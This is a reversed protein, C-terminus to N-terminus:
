GTRSVASRDGGREYLVGESWIRPVQGWAAASEVDPFFGCGERNASTNCLVPSGSLRLYRNLLEALWPDGAPSITQLRASGDVHIVAPIRERWEPRVDHRFLMYPDRGGPDFVAAAHEELCIPAVPRYFERRKITNLREKMEPGAASALISRHGLARPGLEARGHLVVVPEQTEHLVSALRETSCASATWGEPPAGAGALAPGSYVSWSLPGPGARWWAYACAAGIASGADNPMPPVWVDGVCGSARLRSNWGINLACGGVLCIRDAPLRHVRIARALREVLLDGLFTEFSSMRDADSGCGADQVAEWFHKGILARRATRLVDRFRAIAPELPGGLGAYAMAKGSLALMREAVPPTDRYEALCVAFQPYANGTVPLLPGIRRVGAEPQVHFLTPWISGDWVLVLADLGAPAYPSTGYACAIHGAVHTSSLYRVEHAGFPLPGDMELCAMPDGAPPPSYGAVPVTVARDGATVWVPSGELWGDVVVADFDCLGYGGDTLWAAVRDLDGIKGYRPGNGVKESEVSVTLEGDDVIAFGADHTIKLGLVRM